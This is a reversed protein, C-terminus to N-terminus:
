LYQHSHYLFHMNSLIKQSFTDSIECFKVAVKRFFDALFEGKKKCITIERQAPLVTSPFPEGGLDLRMAGALRSGSGRKPGQLSTKSRM